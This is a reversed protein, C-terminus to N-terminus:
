LLSFIMIFFLIGATWLSPILPWIWLVDAKEECDCFTFSHKNASITLDLAAAPSDWHFTFSVGLQQCVGGLLHCHDLRYSIGHRSGFGRTRDLRQALPFRTVSPDQLLKEKSAWTLSLHLSDSPLHVEANVRVCM